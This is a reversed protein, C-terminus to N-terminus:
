EIRVYQNTTFNGLPHAATPAPRWAALALAVLGLVVLARRLRLPSIVAPRGPQHDFRIGSERAKASGEYPRSEDRGGEWDGPVSIPVASGVNGTPQRRPRARNMAGRRRQPLAQVLM